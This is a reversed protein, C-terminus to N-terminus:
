KKSLSDQIPLRKEHIPVILSIGADRFNDQINEHMRSYVGAQQNPLNTYANIEYSVYYDNLAKQLVYPEPQDVVGKTKRAADLLLEHVQRWPVDYAVKITSSIGLGLEQAETSYNITHSNMVESNPITIDENNVTRLRTVLLNKEIIDGVSDGIRVRDGIKFARTYTLVLGSMINSLSSSSGFTLLVGLFVSVGQFVPSDSGPLYPYIIIIMFAFLLIRLVQYTPKAWDPYFGPITLAGKAVEDRFYAFAKFVFRFITLIIIVTFLDPLYNWISMAIRRIPRMVYDILTDAIPKTWPFIGFLLLLALYVLVFILIWKLINIVIVIARAQGEVPFLEYDRIKIGHYWKGKGRLVFVRVKRYFRNVYKVVVYLLLLIAAAAAMNRLIYGLQTKELQDHISHHIVERYHATLADRDMDAWVADVPTVTLLVQEGYVLDSADEHRVIRLSDISYNRGEVIKKIEGVTYEARHQPSFPGVRAYIRFLTDHMLIVPVGESLSRLSDIQQRQRQKAQQDANRLQEIEALLEAKKLNDSTQLRSLQDLLEVQRLSDSRRMSDARIIEAARALVEAQQLSDLNMQLSDMVQAKSESLMLAFVCCLSFLLANIRSM